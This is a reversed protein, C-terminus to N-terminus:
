QKRWLHRRRRHNPGGGGSAVGGSLAMSIRQAAKNSGSQYAALKAAKMNEGCAM